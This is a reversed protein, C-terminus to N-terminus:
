GPSRLLWELVIYLKKVVSRNHMPPEAGLQKFGYLIKKWRCLLTEKQYVEFGQTKEVYAEKDIVRNLLVIRVNM